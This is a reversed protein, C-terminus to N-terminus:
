SYVGINDWHWTFTTEPRLTAPSKMPTYNHDKFVVRVPGSPFRGPVTFENFTGNELQFGWTLTGDGNDRFFSSRRIAVSNLAPDGAGYGSGFRVSPAYPCGDCRYGLEGGAQLFGNPGAPTNIKRAFQGSWQTGVSGIQDHTTTDCPVDGTCPLNQFDFQGAPIIAVETWQRDGLDTQNVDWRVERVDSFVRAPSFAGISYGSTDGISTMVHGKADDGGPACRYFWEQNFGESRQGRDITRTELPSGCHHNDGTISHDGPWSVTSVVSDDRHYLGTEFRSISDSAAFDEFFQVDGTAAPLTTSPATTTPVTTTAPLTTAPVTTAPLTTAPVTTAPVTTAPLTTAPLTTAPVTTSSGGGGHVPPRNRGSRWRAWHGRDSSDDVRREVSWPNEDRGGAGEELECGAAIVAFATLLMLLRLTRTM